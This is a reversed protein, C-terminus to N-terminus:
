AFDYSAVTEVKEAPVVRELAQWTARTYNKYLPSTLKKQNFIQLNGNHIKLLGHLVKVEALLTEEIVEGNKKTGNAIWYNRTDEYALFNIAEPLLVAVAYDFKVGVPMRGLLNNLAKVCALQSSEATFKKVTGRRNFYSTGTTAMNFPSPLSYDKLVMNTYNGQSPAVPSDFASVFYDSDYCVYICFRLLLQVQQYTLQQATSSADNNFISEMYYHIYSNMYASPFYYDSYVKCFALLPLASYEQVDDFNPNIKYGLSQLVKLAQRGIPTYIYGSGSETIFDCGSQELETSASITGASQAFVSGFPTSYSTFPTVFADLLTDNTFTPVKYILGSDKGDQGASPTHYADTIFDNWGRFITRFPVFFRSIKLKSGPAFTPVVLPNLRTFSEVNVELKEGPVMEKWYIPNLQMWNATTIHKCSLDLKTNDAIAIPINTTDKFNAM